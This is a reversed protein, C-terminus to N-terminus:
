LSVLQCVTGPPCPWKEPRAWPNIVMRHTEPHPILFPDACPLGIRGIRDPIDWKETVAEQGTYKKKKAFSSSIVLCLILHLLLTHKFNM